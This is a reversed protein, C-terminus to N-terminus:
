MRISTWLPYALKLLWKKWNGERKFRPGYKISIKSGPVTHGIHLNRMVVAGPIIQSGAALDRKVSFCHLM